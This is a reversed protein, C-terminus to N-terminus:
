THVTKLIGCDPVSYKMLYVTMLLLNLAMGHWAM